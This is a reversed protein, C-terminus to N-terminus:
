GEEPKAGVACLQLHKDRLGYAREGVAIELATLSSSDKGSCEFEGSGGM